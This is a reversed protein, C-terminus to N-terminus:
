LGYPRLSDSVVSIVSCLKHVNCLSILVLYTQSLLCASKWYIKFRLM